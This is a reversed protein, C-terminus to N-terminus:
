MDVSVRETGAQALPWPVGTALTCLSRAGAVFVAVCAVLFSSERPTM